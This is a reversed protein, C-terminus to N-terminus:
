KHMQESLYNATGMEQISHLQAELFDVHREEVEILHEFLERSGTDNADTCLKVADNYQRVEGHESALDYELQQQVKAGIKPVLGVKVAPTGDLFIIREILGEAHKMEEIARGKTLQGLREYGWNDCMEAHTMYQVIATLESSLAANLQEIVKDNGRMTREM